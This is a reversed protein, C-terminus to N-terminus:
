KNLIVKGRLRDHLIFDKADGAVLIRINDKNFIDIGLFEVKSHLGQQTVITTVIGENEEHYVKFVMELKAPNWVPKWNQITWAATYSKFAALESSTLYGGMAIRVDSDNNLQSMVKRLIGSPHVISIKKIYYGTGGFVASTVIGTVFGYFGSQFPTMSMLGYTLDWMFTSLGYVTVGIGGIIAGQTLQPRYKQIFSNVSTSSNSTTSSSSSSDSSKNENNLNSLFLKQLQRFNNKKFLFNNRQIIAKM